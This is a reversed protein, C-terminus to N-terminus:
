CLEFEEVEYLLLANSPNRYIEVGDRTEVYEPAGGADKTMMGVTAPRSLCAGVVRLLGSSDEHGESVIFVKM